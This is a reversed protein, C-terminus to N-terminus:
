ARILWCSRRCVAELDAAFPRWIPPLRMGSRRVGFVNAFKISIWNYSLGRLTYSLWQLFNYSLELVTRAAWGLVTIHWTQAPPTQGVGWGDVGWGDVDDLGWGERGESVGRVRGSVDM